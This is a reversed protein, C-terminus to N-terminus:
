APFCSALLAELCLADNSDFAALERSDIDLVAVVPGATDAHSDSAATDAAPKDTASAATDAVPKDATAALSTAVATDAAPAPSDSAATTDAASKDDAAALSSSAATEAPRPCPTIHRPAAFLPVVIESRSLASCAIHGPFADVDPVVVTRREKWATGCVGRGYPIRLCAVPGQFPGLVLEAGAGESAAGENAAGKSAAGESAAGESAAPAVLEAPKADVRYFGAWHCRLKEYLVASLEAMLAVPDTEGATLSRAEASIERYLAKKQGKELCVKRFLADPIHCYGGPNKDLYSQHYEEADYFNKLPLVEVALPEAHRAAEEDFASHIAPLDSPDSYYIGTRYRTGEDGGQRNLSVPDIAAFYLKLLESLPLVEPDYVIRVTEAFGTRDTYVEEYTPNNLGDAGNAYGTRTSLVGDVLSFYKEAGWFCGAALHVTKATSIM